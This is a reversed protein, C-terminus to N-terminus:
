VEKVCRNVVDIVQLVENMPMIPDMPLSLVTSALHDALENHLSLSRYAEQAHPAIPYHILTQV